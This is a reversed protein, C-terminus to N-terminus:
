LINTEVYQAREYLRGKVPDFMDNQNRRVFIFQVSQTLRKVNESRMSTGFCIITNAKGHLLSFRAGFPFSETEDVFISSCKEFDDAAEMRHSELALDRTLRAINIPSRPKHGLSARIVSVLDNRDNIAVGSERLVIEVTDGSAITQSWGLISRAHHEGNWNNEIAISV